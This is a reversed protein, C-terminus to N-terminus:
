HVMKSTEIKLMKLKKLKQNSNSVITVQLTRVQARLHPSSRLDLANFWEALIVNQKKRYFIIQIGM